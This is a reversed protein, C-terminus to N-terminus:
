PALGFGEATRRGDWSDIAYPSAETELHEMLGIGVKQGFTPIQTACINFQARSSRNGLQTVMRGMIKPQLV